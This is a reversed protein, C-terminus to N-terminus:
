VVLRAKPHAGVRHEELLDLIFSAHLRSERDDGLLEKTVVRGAEQVLLLLIEAAKPTLPIFEDGRYLGRSSADLRFPGFRYQGAIAKTPAASETPM